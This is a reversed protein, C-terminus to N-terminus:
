EKLLEDLASDVASRPKDAKNDTPQKTESPQKGDDAPKADPPAAVEIAGDVMKAILDAIQGQEKALADFEIQQADSVTEDAVTQELAKTRANVSEQMLKLLKLETLNHVRDGPQQNSDGGDGGSQEDDAKPDGTDEALAALLQELRDLAAQQVRETPADTHGAELRVHARGMQEAASDLGLRFVEAASVKEALDATETQLGSQLKALNRLSQLPAPTLAGDANRLGRLRRTEALAGRQRVALSKIADNMTSLQEQALDQEAQRRREALEQQADDLDKKAGAAKAEAAAGDGQEGSQRSEGSKASADAVKNGAQEAQLRQLQRAFRELEAEVERQERSLRKLEHKLSEERAPDGKAGQLEDRLQKSKKQLGAHQQRLGSLKQEAERLKKVLRALEQERRNALIDLLEGLQRNAQQQKQVAQGLQNDIVQRASDRMQGSLGAARATRVADALSDAALPSSDRLNATLQEMRQELKDYRRALDAQLEGLRELDTRQQVSLDQPAKGLTDQGISKTQRELDSLERRVQAIDRNISRLDNSQALEALLKEISAIVNDQATVGTQLSSAVSKEPGPEPSPNVGVIRHANKAASTLEHEIVALEERDLRRIEADIAAVRRAIEPNDIRNSSLENMLSQTQALVGEDRGALSRRIQRQGLETSHLQDQDQKRFGGVREIQTLLGQTQLRAEQELKQIRALEALIGSQRATLRDEFDQSGLITLQVSQSAGDQPLYDSAMAGVTILTGPKLSMSALDWAYDITRTEATPSATGAAAISPLTAPGAFLSITSPSDKLLDSRVYSLEISRLRLDDRAILKLPVLANATVFVHGTPREITIQPPTDAIARVDWKDDAGGILQERDTLELWYKGSTTILWSRLSSDNDRPSAITTEAPQLDLAFSYGDATVYLPVVTGDDSHVAAAALLKTAKGRLTVQTGRLAQIRRDSTQAPLGTYAPPHLMLELSEVRPPEVVEVSIWPMDRDDGGIARYEFPRVINEKRALMARGVRQPKDLEEASPRGDVLYRYVVRADDPLPGNQDILEVEFDQGLAVRDIPLKFGLHNQRPWAEGGLPLLLRGVAIRSSIPDFVMLVAAFLGVALAITVARMTPRLDVTASWDLDSLEATASSIVARRLTASGATPEDEHKNLFDITSSLRDALHPYRREIKRAVTVDNLRHNIAPLLYRFVTWGAVALIALSCIVRVGPDRFRILYDALGLAIAGALVGGVVWSLGYFLLLRHTRRGIRAVLRQLPHM